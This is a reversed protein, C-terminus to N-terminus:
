PGRRRLRVKGPNFERRGFALFASRRQDRGLKACCCGSVDTSEVESPDRITKGAKRCSKTKLSFRKKLQDDRAGAASAWPYNKGAGNLTPWGAAGVAGGVATEHDQFPAGPPWKTRRWDVWPRRRGRGGYEGGSFIPGTKKKKLPSFVDKKTKNRQNERAFLRGGELGFRPRPGEWRGM